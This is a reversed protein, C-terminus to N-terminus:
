KTRMGVAFPSLIFGLLAIAWRKMWPSKFTNEDKLKTGDLIRFRKLVSVVLNTKM